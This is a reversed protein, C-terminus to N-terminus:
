AGSSLFLVSFPVGDANCGLRAETDYDTMGDQWTEEQDFAIYVTEEGDGESFDVYQYVTNSGLHTGRDTGTNAFGIIVGSDSAERIDLDIKDDTKEILNTLTVGSITQDSMSCTVKVREDEIISRRQITANFSIEEGDVIDADSLYITMVDERDNLFDVNTTANVNGASLIVASVGSGSVSVGSGIGLLASGGFLVFAVGAIILLGLGKKVGLRRLSKGFGLLGLYLIAFLAVYLWPNVLVSKIDM